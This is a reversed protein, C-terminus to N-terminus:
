IFYKDRNGDIEKKIKQKITKNKKYISQESYGMYLAIDKLSIKNCVFNIFLHYESQTLVKEMAEDLLTLFNDKYLYNSDKIETNPIEELGDLSTNSILNIYKGSKLYQTVDNRVVIWFYANKDVITNNLNAKCTLLKEISSQYLDEIEDSSLKNRYNKFCYKKFRIFLNEHNTVIFEEL